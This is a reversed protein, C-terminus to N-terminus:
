SSALINAMAVITFLRRYVTFIAHRLLRFPKQDIKEAPLPFTIQLPPSPLASEEVTLTKGEVQENVLSSNSSAVTYISPSDPISSLSATSSHGNERETTEEPDTAMAMTYRDSM